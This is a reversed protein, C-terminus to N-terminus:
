LEKDRIEKRNEKLKYYKKRKSFTDFGVKKYLALASSNTEKVELIVESVGLESLKEFSRLLIDVGYGKGRNNNPIYIYLLDASSLHYSYLVLGQIDNVEKIPERCRAFGITNEM